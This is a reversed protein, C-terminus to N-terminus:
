ACATPPCAAILRAAVEHLDGHELDLEYYLPIQLAALFFAVALPDTLMGATDSIPPRPQEM